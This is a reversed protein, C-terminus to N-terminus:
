GGDKSMIKEIIRGVLFGIVAGVAGFVLSWIPIFIFALGSTSAGTQTGVFDTIWAILFFLSLGDFGIIACIACAKLSLPTKGWSGDGSWVIKEFLRSAAVFPVLNWLAFLVNLAFLALFVSLGEADFGLLANLGCILFVLLAGIGSIIHVATRM